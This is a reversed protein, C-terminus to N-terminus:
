FFLPKRGLFVTQSKASELHGLDMQILFGRLNTKYIPHIATEEGPFVQKVAGVKRCAIMNLYCDYIPQGATASAQNSYPVFAFYSTQGGSANLYYPSQKATTIAARLREIQQSEEHLQKEAVNIAVDLQAVESRLEAQKVLVDLSSTGTTTKDLVNDTLLVEAIKSDTYNGEAQNLASLQSAADGKTILGAALDKNINGELEKLRKLVEQTKENYAKKQSDLTALQPGTTRNHTSERAIAAELKPELALLAARHTQMEDLGSQLKNSDVKLDEITQQSTVLKERFDLSKEDTASLIVPAAWSSSVAYFGMVFAYALIGALVLYLVAIALVRYLTLVLKYHLSQGPAARKVVAPAKAKTESSITDVTPTGM